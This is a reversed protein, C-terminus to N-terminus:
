DLLEDENLLIFVYDSARPFYSFYTDDPLLQFSTGFACNFVVRFSNVPSISPYLSERCSEPLLYANLIAARQPVGPSRPVGWVEGADSGHDSQLIIIPQSDSNELIEAIVEEIRQTVYIAQPRYRDRPSPESGVLTFAGERPTPSGDAAFLYPSHPALIHAFVFKPGPSGAVQGLNDFEARIIQRLADDPYSNRVVEKPTNEDIWEILHPTVIRLPTTFLFQSELPTLVFTAPPPDTLGSIDVSETGLYLDADAIETPAYGSRLAVTTYGVSELSERVRSHQIPDAFVGPYSGRVLPLGLNQTFDMNLSSALSLVTWIHNARSEDAVFFGNNELFNIFDSNNFGFGSAMFDSRAYGDLIIYYIDPPPGEEPSQLRVPQLGGDWPNQGLLWSARASILLPFLGLVLAAGAVVNVTRVLAELNRRTRVIALSAAGAIVLLGGMLYRHRGLVFGALEAQGVLNYLHGYSFFALVWVTAILGAKMPRRTFVWALGLSVLAVTEAVLFPRLSDQVLVEGINAGLLALVAYAAFLFPHLPWTMLGMRNKLNPMM